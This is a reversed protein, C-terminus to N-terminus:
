KTDTGRLSIREMKLQSRALPELMQLHFHTKGRPGRGKLRESGCFAVHPGDQTDPCSCVINQRYHHSKTDLDFTDQRQQKKTQGKLIKGRMEKPSRVRPPWMAQIFFRPDRHLFSSGNLSQNFDTWQNQIHNCFTNKGKLGRRVFKIGEVPGLPGGPRTM